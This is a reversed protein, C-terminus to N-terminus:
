RYEASEGRRPMTVFQHTLTVDADKSVAKQLLRIDVALICLEKAAVERVWLGEEQWTRVHARPNSAIKGAWEPISALM